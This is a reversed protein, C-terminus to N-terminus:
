ELISDCFSQLIQLSQCQSMIRHPCAPAISYVLGNRTLVSNSAGSGHKVNTQKVKHMIKINISKPQNPKRQEEQNTNLKTLRLWTFQNLLSLNQVM